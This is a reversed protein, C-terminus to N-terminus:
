IYLYYNSKKNLNIKIKKIINKKNIQYGHGEQRM